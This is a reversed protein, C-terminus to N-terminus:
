LAIDCGGFVYMKDSYKKAKQMEQLKGKCKIYLTYFHKTNVCQKYEDIPTEGNVAM